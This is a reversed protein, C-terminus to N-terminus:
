FVAKVRSWSTERTATESEHYALEAIAGSGSFVIELGTVGQFDGLDIVQCSNNGLDSGSGAGVFGDPGDMEFDLTESDIDIIVMYELDVVMDFDFRISGGGAEDDPDDVLGDGNSDVIDEAIILLNGRPVCNEGPQGIEGGTGVGPGGCTENATGLDFDGGSPNGSDFIIISQPGGGANGGSITIQPFATGPATGGGPVEGAIVTGAAPGGFDQIEAIASTVFFLILIALFIKIRFLPAEQFAICAHKM